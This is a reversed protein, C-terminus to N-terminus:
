QDSQNSLEPRFDLFVPFRLSVGGQQNTTEEFYQVSIMTGLYEDRHDWIQQRLEESFGSGVKLPCGKYETLIAGLRGSNKNTGEEFGLIPLDVDHMKKVKLLGSTRTFRYPADCINVMVGEEGNNIQQQLVVEIMSTDTGEYLIPLLEFYTFNTQFLGDLAQRRETYPRVCTQNKFEEATLMDFVKMKVGHKVGDRRTIMMTQKYCAKNDLGESHLLTIEGDLAINDPMQAMESELDVLGEYKQGARTYFDVVGNQKIAVIRGGDIKTTLAFRKGIVAEPKEYYKNALMVNFTPILDPICKNITIVDVGLQVNKTIIDILLRDLDPDEILEKSTRRFNQLSALIQDTGTNHTKLYDLMTRVTSWIILAGNYGSVDKSMKKTSVGTVIYPNYVFDLCYKVDEDGAYRKLVDMKYLKGNDALVEDVFRKFANLTKM